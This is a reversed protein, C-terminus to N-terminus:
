AMRGRASISAAELARRAIVSAAHLRYETNSRIDTIPDIEERCIGAAQIFHEKAPDKGLLYEEAERCRRVV